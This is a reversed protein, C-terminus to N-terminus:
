KMEMTQHGRHKPKRYIQKGLEPEALLVFHVTSKKLKFIILPPWISNLMLIQNERGEDWSWGTISVKTEGLVVGGSAAGNSDAGDSDRPVM